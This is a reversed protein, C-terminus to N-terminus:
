IYPQRYGSVFPQAVSGRRNKGERVRPVGKNVQIELESEGFGAVALTIAYYNVRCKLTM